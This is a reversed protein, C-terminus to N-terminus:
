RLLPQLTGCFTEIESMTNYFHPSIRISGERLSVILESNNLSQFVMEANPIKLTVIGSRITHERPTIVEVGENDAFAIVRDTLSLLHHHIKSIGIEKLLGASAGLAVIAAHNQAGNEYRRASDDFDLRYDFLNSFYHKNSTWGASQQKIRGQLEETVYVFGLGMMSLLWKHGGCSLFDIQSNLVDIPTSGVGQIADVCFIIKKEKCLTGIATLDSVFGSFFQVFSISLLKTRPTIAAQLDELRIEGNTSKVFDIEVGYRQLNLFPVVNSPFEIDNLLIRDGSHWEIGNALISLGDSTNNVFGIRKHPANIIAGIGKKTDISIQVIEPFDDISGESRNLLYQEMAEKTRSNLPSIAAHNLWMKGSKLYPFLTRYSELTQTM